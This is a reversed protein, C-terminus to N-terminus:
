DGEAPGGDDWGPFAGRGDGRAGRGPRGSGGRPDLMRGRFAKRQEPTLIERIALIEEFRRKAMEQRDECKPRVAQIAEFKKRLEDASVDSQMAARLAEHAERLKARDARFSDDVPRHKEHITKIKSVQEATLKLEEIMRKGPFGREKGKAATAGPFAMAGVVISTLIWRHTTQRMNIIEKTPNTNV